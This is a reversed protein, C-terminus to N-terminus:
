KALKSQRSANQSDTSVLIPLSTFNRGAIVPKVTQKEKAAKGVVTRLTNQCNIVRRGTDISLANNMMKPKYIDKSEYKGLNPSRSLLNPRSFQAAPVIDIRPVEHDGTMGSLLSPIIM